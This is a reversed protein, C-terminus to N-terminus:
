PGLVVRYRGGEQFIMVPLALAQGLKAMRAPTNLTAKSAAFFPAFVSHQVGHDQDPLFFLLQGPQLARVLRIMGAERAVVFAVDKLRSRSILWDLVANKFPKYSGYARYHQGIALPAFELWVSHGLLLMVNRGQVLAQEIHERGEIELRRYLWQRSRFFLVSYDLLACGYSQFHACLWAERLAADLEPFCLALNTRVIHCRKPNVQQMLRGLQRGLGHRLWVPLFALPWLLGVGLWSLWYRPALLARPLKMVEGAM